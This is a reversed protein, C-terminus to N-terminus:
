EGEKADRVMRLWKEKQERVAEADMLQSAEEALYEIAKILGPKTPNSVGVGAKIFQERLVKMGKEKDKYVKCFDTIIADTVGMLSTKDREMLVSEALLEEFIEKTPDELRQSSLMMKAISIFAKEVNEGTKASTLFHNEMGSPAYKSSIQSLDDMTFQERAVLDVKNALFVLYPDAVVKKLSPIWYSEISDLTERRTVDAVLLAGDMGVFARSQVASYAKQGLVDWIQLNLSFERGNVKLDIDKRSIKTGITEIYHDHFEDIVYRRILSTKGVSSDGM